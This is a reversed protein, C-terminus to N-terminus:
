PTAPRWRRPPRCGEAVAAAALEAGVDPAGPLGPVGTTESSARTPEDPTGSSARTPDDSM